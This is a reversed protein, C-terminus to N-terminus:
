GGAQRRNGTAARNFRTMTPGEPEDETEDEGHTTRM